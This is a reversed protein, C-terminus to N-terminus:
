KCGQLADKQIEIAQCPQLTAAVCKFLNGKAGCAVGSLFGETAGGSPFKTSTSGACTGLGTCNLNTDYYLELKGDCNWDGAPPRSADTTPTTVTQFDAGPKRAGVLDDCDYAAADFGADCGLTNRKNYDKFNDGDCDCTEALCSEADVTAADTSAELEPPPASDFDADIGGDVGSETSTEPTTSADEASFTVDPFACAAGVILGVVTTVGIALFSRKM